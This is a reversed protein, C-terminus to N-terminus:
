TPEVGALWRWPGRLQCPSYRTGLALLSLGSPGKRLESFLGPTFLAKSLQPKTRRVAPRAPPALQPAPPSNSDSWVHELLHTVISLAAHTASCACFSSPLLLLPFFASLGLSFSPLNATAEHTNGRCSTGVTTIGRIVCDYARLFSDRERYQAKM